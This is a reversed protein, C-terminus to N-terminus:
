ELDSKKHITVEHVDHGTEKLRHKLGDRQEEPLDLVRDVLEDDGRRAPNNNCQEPDRTLLCHEDISMWWKCETCDAMRAGWEGISM